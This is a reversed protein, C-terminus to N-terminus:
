CLRNIDLRATPQQAAVVLSKPAQMKASDVLEAVRQQQSKSVLPGVTTTADLGNGLVLSSM